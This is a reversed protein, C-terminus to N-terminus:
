ASPVLLTFGRNFADLMESTTQRDHEKSMWAVSENESKTIQTQVHLHINASGSFNEEAPFLHIHLNFFFFVRDM